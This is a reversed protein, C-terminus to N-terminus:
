GYLGNEEGMRTSRTVMVSRRSSVSGREYIVKGRNAGSLKAFNSTAGFVKTSATHFDDAEGGVTELLVLIPDPIDLCEAVFSDAGCM